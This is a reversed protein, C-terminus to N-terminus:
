VRGVENVVKDATQDYAKILRQSSEYGRYLTMMEVMEKISDVNSKELQGQLVLGKYDKDIVELGDEMRYLGEGVKRLDRKNDINTLNFKDVLEGDVMLEGFSTVAIDAGDLIIDGYIGQVPYGEDTVLKNDGNLKFAGDRTYRLGDETMVEFFGENDLAFDLVNGTRMLQGQEHNTEIRSIRIGSSMTGIVSPHPMHIIGDVFKGDLFVRGDENISLESEGVYIRGKSGMVENGYESVVGGNKDRTFTRLYGDKGVAFEAKDHYSVGYPTKVKIYGANTKINFIGDNESVDLREFTAVNDHNTGGGLKSLLTNEFSESLYIDKKYGVTNINAINNSVIDIKRSSNVLATASVYLGRYM